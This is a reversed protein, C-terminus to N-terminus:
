GPHPIEMVAQKSSRPSASCEAAARPGAKPWREDEGPKAKEPLPFHSPLEAQLTPGLGQLCGRRAAADTVELCLIGGGDSTAIGVKARGGGIVRGPAM